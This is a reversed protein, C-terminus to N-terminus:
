LSVCWLLPMDTPTMIFLTKRDKSYEQTSLLVVSCNQLISSSSSDKTGSLRRDKRTAASLLNPFAKASTPDCQSSPERALSLKSLSSSPSPIPVIFKSSILCIDIPWEDFDDSGIIEFFSVSTPLSSKASIVSPCTALPCADPIHMFSDLIDCSDVASSILSEWLLSSSSDKTGWLILDRKVSASFLRPLTRLRSEWSCTCSEKFVVRIPFKSSLKLALKFDESSPNTSWVSGSNSSSVLNFV